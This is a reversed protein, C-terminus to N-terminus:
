EYDPDFIIIRAQDTSADDEIIMDDDADDTCLDCASLTEVEAHVGFGAPYSYGKDKPVFQLTSGEGLIRTAGTRADTGIWTIHFLGLKNSPVPRNNYLITAAFVCAKDMRSTQEFGATQATVVSMRDGATIEQGEAHMGGSLFRQTLRCEYFPNSISFPDSWAAGNARQKAYCRLGLQGIVMRADIVLTKTNLGSVVLVNQEDATLARWGMGNAAAPDRVVWLYCAEADPVNNDGRKLQASFTRTWREDLIDNGSTLPEPSVVPDTLWDEGHNGEVRLSLNDFYETAFKQTVIKKVDTGTRKDEFVVVGYVQMTENHPLNRHVILGWKPVGACWAANSGDSILFPQSRWAAPTNETDTASLVSSGPNTIRNTDYNDPVPADTYWDIRKIPQDGTMIGTPDFTYVSAFLICPVWVRDSEFDDTAAYFIQNPSGQLLVPSESITLADVANESQHKRSRIM